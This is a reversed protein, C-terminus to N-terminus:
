KAELITATITITADAPTYRFANEFLNVLVQSFLDGDVFLLPLDAPVNSRRLTRGKIEQRLSRLSVGVLEELVHWQRNLLVSGSDLRAM